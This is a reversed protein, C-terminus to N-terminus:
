AGPRRSGDLMGRKAPVLLSGLLVNRPHKVAKAEARRGYRGRGGGVAGAGGENDTGGANGSSASGGTSGGKGGGGGRGGEAVEGGSGAPAGGAGSTGGSGDVVPDRESQRIASASCRTCARSPSSASDSRAVSASQQAVVIVVESVDRNREEPGSAMRDTLQARTLSRRIRAGASTTASTPSSSLGPSVRTGETLRM